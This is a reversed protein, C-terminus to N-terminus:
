TIVFLYLRTVNTGTNKTSCNEFYAFKNKRNMPHIWCIGPTDGVFRHVVSTGSAITSSIAAAFSIESSQCRYVASISIFACRTGTSSTLLPVHTDRAHRSTRTPSMTRTDRSSNKGASRTSSLLLSGSPSAYTSVAFRSPSVFRLTFCASGSVAGSTDAVRTEDSRPVSDHSAGFLLKYVNSPVSSTGPWAGRGTPGSWSSSRPACSRLAGHTYPRTTNVPWSVLSSCFAVLVGIFRVRTSFCTLASMRESNTSSIASESIELIPECTYRPEAGAYRIGCSSPRLPTRWNTSDTKVNMMRYLLKIGM